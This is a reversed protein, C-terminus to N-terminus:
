ALRVGALDTTGGQEAHPSAAADYRVLTVYGDLAGPPEAFPRGDVALWVHGEIGGGADRRIGVVVEPRGGSACLLRYAGLSRELCNGPARAPFRRGNEVFTELAREFARDRAARPATSAWRVLTGFPVIHKLPRLLGAWTWLRLYAALPLRNV